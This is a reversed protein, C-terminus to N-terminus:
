AWIEQEGGSESTWKEGFRLVKQGSLNAMSDVSNKVNSVDNSVSQGQLDRLPDCIDVESPDSADSPAASSTFFELAVKVNL